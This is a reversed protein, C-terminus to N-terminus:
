RSTSCSPAPPWEFGLLGAVLWALPSLSATLFGAGVTVPLSAPVVLPFVSVWVAVWSLGPRLGVSPDAALELNETLVIVFGGVLQFGAALAILEGRSRPPRRSLAWVAIGLVLGLGIERGGDGRPYRAGPAM